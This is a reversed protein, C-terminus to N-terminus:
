DKWSTVSSTQRDNVGWEITELFEIAHKAGHAVACVWGHETLQLLWKEQDETLRGGKERKMELAVGCVREGSFRAPTFILLDPVGRKMGVAKLKRVARARQSPPGALHAGNPVHCYMLGMQDLWQCVEKQEEAESRM